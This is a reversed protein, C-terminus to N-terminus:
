KWDFDTHFNKFFKHIPQSCAWPFALAVFLFFYRDRVTQCLRRAQQLGQSLTSNGPCLIVTGGSKTVREIERLEIEPDDGYVHGSLLVDCSKDSLPIDIILGDLVFFKGRHASFKSSLFRRLREIPEVAYVIKAAVVLPELLRGTGSGVDAIVKGEFDALCLLEDNNWKLFPQKDYEEPCHVYVIWDCIRKMVAIECERIM